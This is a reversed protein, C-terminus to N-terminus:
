HADAEYRRGGSDTDRIATDEKEADKQEERNTIILDKKDFNATFLKEAEKLTKISVEVYAGVNWRKKRMIRKVREAIIKQQTKM